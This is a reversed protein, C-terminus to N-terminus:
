DEWEPNFHDYWWSNHPFTRFTSIRWDDIGALRCKEACTKARESAGNLTSDVHSSRRHYAKAYEWCENEAKWLRQLLEQEEPGIGQLARRQKRGRDTLGHIAQKLGRLATALLASVASFRRKRAATHM